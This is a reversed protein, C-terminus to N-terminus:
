IAYFSKFCYNFDSYSIWLKTSSVAVLLMVYNLQRLVEPLNNFHCCLSHKLEEANCQSAAMDVKDSQLTPLNQKPISVSRVKSNHCKPIYPDSQHYKKYKM